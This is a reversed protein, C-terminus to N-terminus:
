VARTFTQDLNCHMRQQRQTFNSCTKFNLKNRVVKNEHIQTFHWSLSSKHSPMQERLYNSPITVTYLAEHAIHSCIVKLRKHKFSHSKQKFFGSLVKLSFCNSYFLSKLNEFFNQMQLPKYYQLVSIYPILLKPFHNITKLCQIGYPTQM